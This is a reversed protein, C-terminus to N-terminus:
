PPPPNSSGTTTKNTRDDSKDYTYSTIVGNNITPTGTHSVQKIRGRSDYSYNITESARAMMAGSAITAAATLGIIIWDITRRRSPDNM